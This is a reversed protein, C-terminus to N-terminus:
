LGFGKPHKYANPGTSHSYGNKDYHDAIIAGNKDKGYRSEGDYVLKGKKNKKYKTTKNGSEETRQDITGDGDVDHDIIRGNNTYQISTTNKGNEVRQVVQGKEDYKWTIEREITGDDGKDYSEYTVKGDENYKFKRRESSELKQDKTYNQILVEDVNGDGDYDYEEVVNWLSLEMNNGENFRITTKKTGNADLKEMKVGPNFKVM